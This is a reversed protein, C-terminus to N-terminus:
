FYELINWLQTGEYFFSLIKTYEWNYKRAFNNAAVQSMGVGHGYGRGYLIIQAKGDTNKTLETTFVMSPLSTLDNRTSNNFLQIAKNAPSFLRKVDDKFITIEKDDFEIKVELVIGGAGRKSVYLKQIPLYENQQSNTSTTETTVFSSETLSLVSAETTVNTAKTDNQSNSENNNKVSIKPIVVPNKLLNIRQVIEDVSYVVKWGFFASSVEVFGMSELVDKDWIKLFNDIGGESKILELVNDFVSIPKSKLYRLRMNFVDGPDLTFGGSVAYYFTAVPKGNFMLIQGATEKVARIANESTKQTNYVQFNISDDLNAGLSYYRRDSLIKEVAYTRAAIAQAKLAEIHYFSPMEGSVVSCLYEEIFIDNIVAFGKASVYVVEISGKYKNNRGKIIFSASESTPKFYLRTDKSFPGLTNEYNDTRITIFISNNAEYVDCFGKKLESDFVQNYFPFDQGSVFIKFGADFELRVSEFLYSIMGGVSNMKSSILIRVFAPFKEQFKIKYVKGNSFWTYVNRLGPYIMSSWDAVIKDNIEVSRDLPIVGEKEFHLLGKSTDAAVVKSFLGRNKLISFDNDVKTILLGSLVNAFVDFKETCLITEEKGSDNKTDSIHSIETPTVEQSIKIKVVSVEWTGPPLLLYLPEVPLKLNLSYQYNYTLNNFYVILNEENTLSFGKDFGDFTILVNGFVKSLKVEVKKKDTIDEVGLVTEGKLVLFGKLYAECVLKLVKSPQGNYNFIFVPNYSELKSVLKGDSFVSVVYRIDKLNEQSFNYENEFNLFVEFSYETKFEEQPSSFISSSLVIIVLTSFLFSSLRM